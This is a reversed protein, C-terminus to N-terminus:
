FYKLLVEGAEDLNKGFVIIGEDHGGMIIIKEQTVNTKSFLRKIENAMKATGYPVTRDSTPMKDILRDWLEKNHVHIIAKVSKDADYVAAHTLSEASAKIKGKCTVQNNEMDYDTILAFDSSKIPYINGTQTGSILIGEDVKISINGYGIQVHEYEGILKLQHMKDRWLKLEHPVTISLHEESWNCNFKIVGDDAM